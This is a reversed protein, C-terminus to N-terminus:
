LDRKECKINDLVVALEVPLESEFKMFEGSEPHKFKLQAAHLFMRNLGFDRMESNFQRDGHNQDGAIPFGAEKAHLRAQHTKGTHLTIEVLTCNEYFTVPNFTSVATKKPMKKGGAKPKTDDISSRLERKGGQWVGKLLAYYKKEIDSKQQTDDRLMSHLERLTLGNKALLLIGSTHKDLRHVLEVFNLDPRKMRIAEILGVRHNTGSHVAIGAPKDIVILDDNEFIIRRIADELKPHISESVARDSVNIPPIRVLDGVCLRKHAKVRKSNVRVQGTRIISYIHSRPVGHLMGILYNDIRRNESNRDIEVTTVGTYRKPKKSNM